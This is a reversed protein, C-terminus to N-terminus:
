AAYVVRASGLIANRIIYNPDAEIVRRYTLDVPRGFIAELEQRMTGRNPTRPAGPRFTVLVDIDSQPGFEEGLVSGFLAFESISWRKCFGAITDMPLTIQIEGLVRSM